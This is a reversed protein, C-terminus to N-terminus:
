ESPYVLKIQRRVEGMIKQIEKSKQHSMINNEIEGRLISETASQIEYNYGKTTRKDEFKEKIHHYDDYLISSTARYFDPIEIYGKEGYIIAKNLMINNFSCILSATAGDYELIIGTREDVGSESIASSSFISIPKKDIFYNSIAILYVGIDLLAGGALNINYLRGTVDKVMPFGLNAEIVKLNGIRDEEVWQRAKQIPPLFYTWMAEMLFIKKKESLQVLDNLQKDNITIPKECLVNKRHNLCQSAQEFHFIHPTAIYIADVQESKFLENYSYALKLNHERAFEQARNKERSAIAVLEANQVVHFDNAFSHAIKGAGLIGWRVKNM